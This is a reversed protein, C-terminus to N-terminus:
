AIDVGHTVANKKVRLQETEWVTPKSALKYATKLAKSVAKKDGKKSAKTANAIQANLQRYRLKNAEKKSM